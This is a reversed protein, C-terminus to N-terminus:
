QDNIQKELELIYKENDRRISREEAWREMWWLRDIEVKQLRRKLESKRM